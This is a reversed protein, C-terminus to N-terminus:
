NAILVVTIVVDVDPHIERILQVVQNAPTMPQSCERLIRMKAASAKTFGEDERVAADVTGKTPGTVDVEEMVFTVLDRKHLTARIAVQIASM